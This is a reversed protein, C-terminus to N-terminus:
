GIPIDKNNRIWRKFSQLGLYDITEITKGKDKKEILVIDSSSLKMIELNTKFVDSNNIESLYQAEKSNFITPDLLPYNLAYYMAIKKPFRKRISPLNDSKDGIIARYIPVKSPPLNEFRSKYYDSDETIVQEYGKFTIKRVIKTTSDLAQMLDNDGSVIIFNNNYDKIRSISFMVDDAEKNECKAFYVNDFDNFLNYSHDWLDKDFVNEKRNAKYGENLDKRNGSGSDVAIIILADKDNTLIRQILNSVGYLHGTKIGYDNCLESNVFYCKYCYWLYDIIFVNKNQYKKLLDHITIM